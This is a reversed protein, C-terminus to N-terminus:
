RCVFDPLRATGMRLYLPFGASSSQLISREVGDRQRAQDLAYRMVAEGYGRRQQKPDTGVAYVGVVGAGTFTVATSVARGGLYAVWGTMPSTWVGENGYVELALEFPMYFAQSMILSFDRRVGADSVPRFEV